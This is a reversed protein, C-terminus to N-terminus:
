AIANGYELDKSTLELFISWELEAFGEGIAGDRITM